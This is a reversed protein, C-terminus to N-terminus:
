PCEARVPYVIYNMSAHTSKRNKISITMLNLVVYKSGLYLTSTRSGWTIASFYRLPDNKMSKMELTGKEENAYPEPPAVFKKSASPRSLNSRIFLNDVVTLREFKDWSMLTYRFTMIIAKKRITKMWTREQQQNEITELCSLHTWFMSKM